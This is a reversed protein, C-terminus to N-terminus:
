GPWPRPVWRAAVAKADGVWGQIIKTQTLSDAQTQDIPENWDGTPLPSPPTDVAEGRYALRAVLESNSDTM